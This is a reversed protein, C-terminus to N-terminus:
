TAEFEHQGDEHQTGLYYSSQHASHLASQAPVFVAEDPSDTPSNLSRCTGLHMICLSKWRRAPAFDM